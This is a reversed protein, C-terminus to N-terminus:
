WTSWTVVNVVTRLVACIAFGKMLEFDAEMTPATGLSEGRSSCKMRVVKSLDEKGM